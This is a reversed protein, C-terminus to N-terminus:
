WSNKYWYPMLNNRYTYVLNVAQLHMKSSKVGGGIFIMNDKHM